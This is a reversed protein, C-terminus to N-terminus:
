SCFSSTTVASTKQFDLLTWEAVSAWVTQPTANIFQLTDGHKITTSIFPDSLIRSM